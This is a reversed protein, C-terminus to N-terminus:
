QNVPPFVNEDIITKLAEQASVVVEEWYPSQLYELDTLEVGLKEFMKDLRTTVMKIADVEAQDKLIVGVLSEPDAALETDDYIFHIAFDLCDYQIGPPFKKALWAERQYDPDALAKLYGVLEERMEPYQM